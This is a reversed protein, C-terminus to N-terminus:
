EVFDQRIENVKISLLELNEKKVPESFKEYIVKLEKLQTILIGMEKYDKYVELLGIMDELSLQQALIIEVLADNGEVKNEALKTSIYLGEIWGGLIILASIEGRNNEELYSSSSMFTESIINMMENKDSINKEIKILTSDNIADLIGLGEALKKSAAMYNITIQQQEFLSSYSLDASYVGLNLAQKKSTSYTNLNSIPNLIDSKFKVHATELIMATEVPSPLSYLIEKAQEYSANIDETTVVVNNGESDINKPKCSILAISLFVILLLKIKM